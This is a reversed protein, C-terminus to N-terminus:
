RNKPAFRALVVQDTNMKLSCAKTGSCAGNWESFRYGRIPIARLTIRSHKRLGITCGQGCAIGGPISAVRGMSPDNIGVLLAVNPKKLEFVAGVVKEADMGVSCRGKGSCDGTWNAFRYGTASRAALRVKAGRQYSHACTLGCDIRGPSGAVRGAGSRTVLLRTRADAAGRSGLRWIRNHASDAILLNGYSDVALGAPDLDVQTATGNAQASTTSIGTGAVTTITGNPSVQRIRFHGRDAIFVNGAGDVAVDEPGSLAAASAPLGDGLGDLPTGGGAYTSIIGDMSVKRVRDNGTDAIYWNGKGDIAVGMPYTLFAETASGGDGSYGPDFEGISKGAVTTLGVNWADVRVIRSFSTDALLLNGRHDVAMGSPRDLSAVAALGDAPDCAVAFGPPIRLCYQGGAVSQIVGNAGVMRLRFPEPDAVYVDGSQRVAVGSPHFLSASTALGGDGEGGRNSGDGAVTAIVGDRGIRRIRGHKTDAIFIRGAGDVAIDAPGNLVAQLASGGDGIDGGAVTTMVGQADIRRIRDNATDAFYVAGNGDVAVASPSDLLAEAAARLDGGFCGHLERNDLTEPMYSCYNGGARTSIIGDSDIRRIRHSDREAIYVKGNADAAVSIPSRLSAEVAASGDGLSCVSPSEFRGFQHDFQCDKGAITSIVGDADVVSVRAYVGLLCNAPSCGGVQVIGSWHTILLRGDADLALGTPSNLSASVAPGTEGTAFSGGGKGAYTTIIGQKTVRRVRFNASDAIYLNEDGDVALGKPHNLMAEIAAAGDGGFGAVGNGAVTSIMGNGDIKRIRQNGSDAVYLNGAGDVALGVPRNLQAGVAKGGDGSFGARSNGAVTEIEGNADIRRVRHQGTDAIYLRGSGDLVLGEPKSLRAKTALGGDGVVDSGAVTVFAESGSFAWASSWFAGAVVVFLIPAFQRQVPLTEM